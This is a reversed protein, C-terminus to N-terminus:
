GNSVEEAAISAAQEYADDFSDVDSLHIWRSSFQRGCRTNLECELVVKWGSAENKLGYMIRGNCRPCRASEHPYLYM